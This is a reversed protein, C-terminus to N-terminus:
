IEDCNESEIIQLYGEDDFYFKMASGKYIDGWEWTTRDPKVSDLPTTGRVVAHYIGNEIFEYAGKGKARFTCNTYDNEWQGLGKGENPGHYIPGQYWIGDTNYGIIKRGSLELALSMDLIRDNNDAIADWALHAWEAKAGWKVTQMKGITYNLVAKYVPDVKRLSYFEEIVPRFEPHTNALGAPYSNHFDIHHVNELPKDTESMLYNMKIFPKPFNKDKKLERGNTIKYSDLDIGYEECKDEFAEFAQNPYIETTKDVKGKGVSLVFTYVGLIVTLRVGRATEIVDYAYSNHLTNKPGKAIAGSKTRKIINMDTNKLYKLIENYLEASAINMGYQVPAMSYQNFAKLQKKGDIRASIFSYIEDYTYM